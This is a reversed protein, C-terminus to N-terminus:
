SKEETQAILASFRPDTRAEDLLEAILALLAEEMEPLYPDDQLTIRADSWQFVDQGNHTYFLAQHLRARIVADPHVSM